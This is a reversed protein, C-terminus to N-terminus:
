HMTPSSAKKMPLRAFEIGNTFAKFHSLELDVENSLEGALSRDIKGPFGMLVSKNKGTNHFTFIVNQV